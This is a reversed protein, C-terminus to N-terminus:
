SEVKDIWAIVDSALFEVLVGREVESVPRGLPGGKCLRKRESKVWRGPLVLLVRPRDIGLSQVRVCEARLEELKM